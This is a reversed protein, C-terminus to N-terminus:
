LIFLISVCFCSHFGVDPNKQFFRRTALRRVRQPSGAPFLSLGPSVGPRRGVPLIGTSRNSRWQPLGARPFCQGSGTGKNTTSIFFSILSSPCLILVCTLVDFLVSFGAACSITDRASHSCHM